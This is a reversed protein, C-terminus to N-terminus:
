QKASMPRGSEREMEEVVFEEALAELGMQLLSKDDPISCGMERLWARGDPTLDDDVLYGRQVLFAKLAAGFQEDQENVNGVGGQDHFSPGVSAPLGM